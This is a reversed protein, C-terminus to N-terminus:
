TLWVWDHMHRPSLPSPHPCGRSAKSNAIRVVLRADSDTPYGTQVPKIYSLPVQVRANMLARECMYSQYNPTGQLAACCRGAWRQRTDQRCGHQCGLHRVHPMWREAAICCKFERTQQAVFTNSLRRYNHNNCNWRAHPIHEICAIVARANKIICRAVPWAGIGYQAM